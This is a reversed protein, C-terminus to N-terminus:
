LKKWAKAQDRLDVLAATLDNQATQAKTLNNSETVEYRFNNIAFIARKEAAVMAAAVTAGSGGDESRALREAQTLEHQLVTIKQNIGDNWPGLDLFRHVDRLSTPVSGALAIFRSTSQSVASGSPGSDGRFLFWWGGVLTVLVLVGVLLVRPRPGGHRPPRHGGGRPPSPM